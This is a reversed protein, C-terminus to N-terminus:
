RRALAVNAEIPIAFGGDRKHPSLVQDLAAILASRAHPSLRSLPGALTTLSVAQQFLEEASQSRLHEVSVTIQVDEFGVHTILRELAEFEGFPCPARLAEVADPGGHQEFTTALATAWIGPQVGRWVSVALRGQPMLVRRMEALATAGNAFFQLGQQCFVVDFSENPFPLEHADGRQWTIAPVVMLSTKCAVAVMAPDADLGTVSGTVGVMPAALRAVIGTGCAVDFVREGSHLNALGVLSQAWGRFLAPVLCREYAEPSRLAEVDSGQCPLPATMSPEIM